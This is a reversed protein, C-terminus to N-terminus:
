LKAKFSPWEILTATANDHQLTKSCKPCFRPESNFHVNGDSQTGNRRLQHLIYLFTILTNSESICIVFFGTKGLPPKTTISPIQHFASLGPVVLFAGCKYRLQHLLLSILYFWTFGLIKLAEHKKYIYHSSFLFTINKMFTIPFFNQCM